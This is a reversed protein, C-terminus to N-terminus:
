LTELLVTHIVSFLAVNAGLCVALTVLVTLSFTREKLLLRLSQRVDRLLYDM